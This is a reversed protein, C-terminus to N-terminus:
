PWCESARILSDYSAGVTVLLAALRREEVDPRLGFRIRQGLVFGAGCGFANPIQMGLGIDLVAGDAVATPETGFGESWGFLVELWPLYWRSLRIGGLGSYMTTGDRQGAGTLRMADVRARLELIRGFPLAVNFGGGYTLGGQGCGSGAFLDVGFTHGVDPRERRPRPGDPTRAFLEVAYGATLLLARYSSADGLGLQGRVGLTLEHGTGSPARADEVLLVGGQRQIAMEVVPGSEGDGDGGVDFLYGGSMELRWAERRGPETHLLLRPGGTTLIASPDDREDDDRFDGDADNGADGGVLWQARGGVALWDLIFVDLPVGFGGAAHTVPVDRDWAGLDAEIGVRIAPLPPPKCRYRTRGDDFRPDGGRVPVCQAGAVSPVAALLAAATLALAVRDRM